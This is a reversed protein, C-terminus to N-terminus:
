VVGPMFGTGSVRYICFPIHKFTEGKSRTNLMMKKNISWFEIFNDVYMCVYM